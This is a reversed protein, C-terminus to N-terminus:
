RFGFVKVHVCHHVQYLLEDGVGVGVHLGKTHPGLSVNLVEVAGAELLEGDGEDSGFHADLVLVGGVTVLAALGVQVDLVQGAQHWSGLTPCDLNVGLLGFKCKEYKPFTKGKLANKYLNSPPAELRSPRKVM